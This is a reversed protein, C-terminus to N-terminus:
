PKKSIIWRFAGFLDFSYVVEIADGAALTIFSNPSPVVYDIQGIGAIIDVSNSSDNVFTLTSLEAPPLSNNSLTIEIGSGAGPPILIFPNFLSGGSVTVNIVTNTTVSYSKGHKNFLKGAAEFYQNGSYENDPLGNATIGAERMMKFFFQQFDGMTEERMATGNPTDKSRGSPYDSDPAVINTSWQIPLRAM